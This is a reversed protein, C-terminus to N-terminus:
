QRRASCNPMDPTNQVNIGQWMEVVFSEAKLKSYIERGNEMVYQRYCGVVIKFWGGVTEEM